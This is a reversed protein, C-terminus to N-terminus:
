QIPLFKVRILVQIQISGVALVGYGAETKFETHTLLVLSFEAEKRPFLCVVVGRERCTQRCSEIV